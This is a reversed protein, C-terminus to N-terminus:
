RSMRESFPVESAIWRVSYSFEVDRAGAHALDVRQLPDASVNVEIVRDNNYAISFDLHTFLYHMAKNRDESADFKSEMEGIYGWVPLDDVLWDHLFEIGEEKLIDVTDFSEGIGPGLWARVKKGDAAKLRDLSRRIM